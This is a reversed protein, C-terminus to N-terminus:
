VKDTTGEEAGAHVLLNFVRENNKISAAYHLPTKGSNDKEQAASPWLALLYEVISTHALGAAKHLPTLGNADKSSLIEPPVPQATKAKLYDLNNDIVAQHINKILGMLHPLYDLFKKVKPHNSTESRLRTGHGELLVVMLKDIDKDHIWIRINSPKIVLAIIM